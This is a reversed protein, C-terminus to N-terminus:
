SPTLKVKEINAYKTCKSMSGGGTNTIDLLTPNIKSNNITYFVEKQTDHILHKSCNVCDYIEFSRFYFSNLKIDDSIVKNEYFDIKKHDFNDKSSSFLKMTKQTSNFKNRSTDVCNCNKCKFIPIIVRSNVFSFNNADNNSLIRIKEKLLEKEIESFNTYIKNELFTFCPNQSVVKFPGEYHSEYLTYNQNSYLKDLLIDCKFNYKGGLKALEEQIVKIEPENLIQEYKQEFRNKREYDYNKNQQTFEINSEVALKYFKEFKDNFQEM